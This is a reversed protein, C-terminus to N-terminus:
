SAKEIAWRLGAGAYSGALGLVITVAFLLALDGARPSRFLLQAIPICPGVLLAWQWAHRPQLIGLVFTIFLLLGVEIGTDDTHLEFRGLFLVAPIWLAYALIGSLKMATTYALYKENYLM